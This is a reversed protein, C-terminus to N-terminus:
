PRLSRMTSVDGYQIGIEVLLGLLDCSQRSSSNKLSDIVHHTSTPAISKCGNSRWSMVGSSFVSDIAETDEIVDRDSCPVQLFSVCDLLHEDKVVVHMLTISRMMDESFIGVHEENGHVPVIM